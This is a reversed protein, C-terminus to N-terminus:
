VSKNMAKFSDQYKELCKQCVCTKRVAEEPIQALLDQPFEVFECWCETANPDAAVACRNPKGCLPCKSPDSLFNKKQIM